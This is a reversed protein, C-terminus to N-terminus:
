ESAEADLRRAETLLNELALKHLDHDTTFSPNHSIERTIDGMDKMWRIAANVAKEHPGQM